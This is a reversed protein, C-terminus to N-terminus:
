KKESFRNKKTSKEKEKRLVQDIAHDNGHNRAYKKLIRVEPPCSPKITPLNCKWYFMFYVYTTELLQYQKPLSETHSIQDAALVWCVVGSTSFWILSLSGNLPQLHSPDLSPPVPPHLSITITIYINQTGFYVCLIPIIRSFFCNKRKLDPENIDRDPDTQDSSEASRFRRFLTRMSELRWLKLLMICTLILLVRMSELRCLKPMLNDLADEYLGALM